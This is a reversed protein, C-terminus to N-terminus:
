KILGLLYTTIFIGHTSFVVDNVLLTVYLSYQTDNGGGQNVGQYLNVCSVDGKDKEVRIGKKNLSKPSPNWLNLSSYKCLKRLSKLIWILISFMVLWYVKPKSSMNNQNNIQHHRCCLDEIFFQDVSFISSCDLHTIEHWFYVWPYCM